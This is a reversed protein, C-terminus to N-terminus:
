GKNEGDTCGRGTKKRIILVMILEIQELLLIWIMCESFTRFCYYLACIMLIGICGHIKFKRKQRINYQPRNIPKIPAFIIVSVILSISLIYCYPYINFCESGIISTLFYFYTFVLCGTYTKMHVGGISPRTLLIAVFCLLFQHFFGSLSFIIFLILFKELDNIISEFAFQIKIKRINEEKRICDGILYNAFAGSIMHNLEEM